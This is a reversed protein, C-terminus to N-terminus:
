KVKLPAGPRYKVQVAKLIMMLGCIIPYAVLLLPPPFVLLIPPPIIQSYQMAFLPSNLGYLVAITTALATMVATHASPMGGQSYMYSFSVEKKRILNIIVKLFQAVFWAALPIWIAKYADLSNNAQDMM